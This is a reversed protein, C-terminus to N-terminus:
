RSASARRSLNRTLHVVFIFFQVTASTLLWFLGWTYAAHSKWWLANMVQVVCMCITFPFFVFLLLRPARPTLRRAGMNMLRHIQCLVQYGLFGALVYSSIRWVLPVSTITYFLPFPLFALLVIGLTHEFLLLLGAVEHLLWRRKAPRLAVILGTFGTFAIGIETLQLLFSSGGLADTQM